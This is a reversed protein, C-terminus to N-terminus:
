MNELKDLINDTFFNTDFYNNFLDQNNNFFLENENDNNLGYLSHENNNNVNSIPSSCPEDFKM